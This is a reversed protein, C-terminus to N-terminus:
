PRSVLRTWPRRCGPWGPGNCTWDVGGSSAPPGCGRWGERFGPTWSGPCRRNWRWPMWGPRGPNGEDGSRRKALALPCQHCAGLRYDGGMALRGSLAFAGEPAELQLRELRLQEDGTSLSMELRELTQVRDELQIRAQAVALQEVELQLPLSIRVPLSLPLSPSAEVKAEPAGGALNLELQEVRLAQLRLRGHLLAEPQWALRVGHLEGRGQASEFTLSALQLRDILRGEVGQLELGAVHHGLQRLLWATGAETSVLTMGGLLLLLLLAPLM